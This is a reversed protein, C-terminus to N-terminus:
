LDLRPKGSRDPQKGRSIEAPYELLWCSGRIVTKRYECPYVALVLGSQSQRNRFFIDPTCNVSVKDFPDDPLIETLILLSQGSDIDNDHGAPTNWETVCFTKAVGKELVPLPYGPTAVFGSTVSDSKGRM